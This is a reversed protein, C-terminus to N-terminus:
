RYSNGLIIPPCDYNIHDKYKYILPHLVNGLIETWQIPYPYEADYGDQFGERCHRAPFKSLDRSKEDLIQSVKAFWEMTLATNKQFIFHCCGIIDRYNACLTRYIDQNPIQAICYEGPERYGSAYAGESIANFADHWDGTIPKIDTYGGGIHHMFYCRLYDSKHTASLHPFSEHLPETIYDYLNDQTILIHRINHFAFEDQIQAYALERSESM